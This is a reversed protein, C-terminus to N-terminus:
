VSSISNIQIYYIRKPDVYSGAALRGWRMISNRTVRRRDKRREPLIGILNSENMSIAPNDGKEGTDFYFEYSVM